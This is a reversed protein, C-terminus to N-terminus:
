VSSDVEWEVLGMPLAAPRECPTNIEIHTGSKGSAEFALMVELTHLALDGNVRHPRGDRIAQVMDVVGIMRANAPHTTSVTQFGDDGPRFVQPPHPYNNPDGVQLTGETGFLQIPPAEAQWSDFSMIMTILCGNAFELVGCLHTDTEVPLIRGWAEESTARRETFAKTTKGCVSKVPGLLNILAHIYYPGMDLMPGGGQEYYFGPNPHWSEHGHGMMVAMGAVPKGIWGEDVLKRSTQAHGFLFTDPACGVRLGKEAALAIVAKGEEFNIGLPKECYVHKGANLCQTAVPLHAQPTTLNVVLEIEPDTLLEAVSMAKCGYREAQNQAAELHLDACAVVDLNSAKQGGEFYAKSINGCGIIGIKMNKM